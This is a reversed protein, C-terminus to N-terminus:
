LICYSPCVELLKVISGCFSSVISYGNRIDLRLQRTELRLLNSSLFSLTNGSDFHDIVTMLSPPVGLIVDEITRHDPNDSTFYEAELAIVASKSTSEDAGDVKPPM